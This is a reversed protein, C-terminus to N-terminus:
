RAGAKKPALPIKTTAANKLDYFQKYRTLLQAEADFESQGISKSNYRDRLKVRALELSEEDGIAGSKPVPLWTPASIDLTATYRPLMDALAAEPSEGGVIVRRSWEGQAQTWLATQRSKATPDSIIGQEVANGSLATKLQAYSGRELANERKDGRASISKVMDTQTAKSIEGRGFAAYVDNVTANGDLVDTWLPAAIPADRGDEKRDMAAYAARVGEGSLEGAIAMREILAGSPIRGEHIDVLLRTENTAQARRQEREAVVDEHAQRAGVRQSLRYAASEARASLAERKEPTLNPFNAPDNVAASVADAANAGAAMDPSSLAANLSRMVTAEDVDSRFKLQAKAGAQPDLWGAAVSGEIASQANDMAVSRTNGDGATAASTAFQALNSELEGRRKSSELAFAAHGTQLSRSVSETAFRETVHAAILPDKVGKLAEGKIKEAEANFGKLAEERDPTQSWRFEADGLSRTVGAVINSADAQRKAERYREGFQAMEGSVQAAGRALAEYPAAIASPSVRPAGPARVTVEDDFRPIQPM